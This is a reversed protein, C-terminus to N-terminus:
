ASRRDEPWRFTVSLGGEDRPELQLSIRYRRAIAAVVSLGLGAGDQSRVRDTRPGTSGRRFPQLLGPIEDPPLIPGTNVVQVEPHGNHNGVRVHVEGGVMNHRVANELTNGLMREILVTDGRVPTSTSRPDLAVEVGDTRLQDLAPQAVLRRMTELLDIEETDRDDFDSQEVRALLLLQEILRNARVNQELATRASAALAEADNTSSPELALELVARQNALPTRLEHSVNAILRQERRVAAEVRDLMANFTEGLERLEDQPGEIPLRDSLSPGGLRRASETMSHVPALARRAALWGIGLAMATLLVVLAVSQVAARRAVEQALQESASRVADSVLNVVPEATAGDDTPQSPAITTRGLVQGGPLVVPTRQDVGVAIRGETVPVVAAEPLRSTLWRYGGVVLVSGAIFVLGATLLTLRSRITLRQGIRTV